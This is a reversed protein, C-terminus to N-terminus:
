LSELRRIFDPVDSLVADAVISWNTDICDHVRRHRMGVIKCWPFDPHAEKFADPLCCVQEGINYLPATITWQVVRDTMIADRDIANDRLHAILGHGLSGILALRREDDLKM